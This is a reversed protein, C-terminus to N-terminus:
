VAVFSSLSLSYSMHLLTYCFTPFLTWFIQLMAFVYFQAQLSRQSHSAYPHVQSLICMSICVATHVIIYSTQICVLLHFLFFPKQVFDFEM